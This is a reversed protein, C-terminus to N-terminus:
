GEGRPPDGSQQTLRREHIATLLGGEDTTSTGRLVREGKTEVRCFFDRFSVELRKLLYALAPLSPVANGAEVRSVFAASFRGAL